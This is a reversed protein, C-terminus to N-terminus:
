PGEGKRDRLEALADDLAAADDDSLFADVDHILLLGDDLRAVGHLHSDTPLGVAAVDTGAPVTVLDVARDARLAVKRDTAAVVILHDSPRAPRCPLGFRARLDLVAVVTGRVDIIGDIATPAEPLPTSAVVRHLEIVVDVPLGCRHEGVKLVLVATPASPSGHRTDVRAAGTGGREPVSM